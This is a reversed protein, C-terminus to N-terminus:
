RSYDALDFLLFEAKQGASIELEEEESVALGDGTELGVENVTLEGTILQLWQHDKSESRFTLRQDVELIAAYLSANQNIVVSQDAGDPSAVLRLRNLREQESFHKQEYSPKVGRKDPMIWIQLLHVPESDSPNFESHMIGTGASMRQIDGRRIVSGNGMSDKHELTGSVIYTIIEMNDHPHTGFGKSPHVVDENIVRLSQFNMHARDLYSAFSFTHYTKLWGHDFHGRESSERKSLM